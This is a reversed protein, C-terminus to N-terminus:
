ALIEVIHYLFLFENVKTVGRDAHHVHRIDLLQPQQVRKQSTDEAASASVKKDGQLDPGTGVV